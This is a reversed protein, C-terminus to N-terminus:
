QAKEMEYILRGISDRAVVVAAALPAPHVNLSMHLAANMKAEAEFHEAAVVLTDSIKRLERLINVLVLERVLDEPSM